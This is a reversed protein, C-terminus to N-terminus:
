DKLQYKNMYKQYLGYQEANVNVEAGDMFIKLIKSNRMDLVDGESLIFSADKGAELSGLTQDVGCVRAANLTICQLAQEPTLGYAAATGANYMVNRTEWYGNHGIAVTVGANVLIAATKFPQDIDSHNHKPLRHINNLVVPVKQEKIIDAVMWAEEADVLVLKISPYTRFFHLAAVISQAGSAHVYLRQTGNMVGKMAHLRANFPKPQAIAAYSQAQSFFTEIVKLEREIKQQRANGPEAWWGSYVNEEPWNLHVGDDAKYAADEWNWGTTRMLSSTGSVIGGQPVAQTFLIGNTLATPLIKSDTNYAILSRVNPNIEGTERFDLTARVAEIENLGMMTSLCFIGPYLHKGKADLVTAGAISTDRGCYVIKGSVIALTGNPLLNGNGIHITAGKILLPQQQAYTNTICCLLVAALLKNFNLATTAM